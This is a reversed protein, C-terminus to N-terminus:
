RAPHRQGVRGLLQDGAASQALALTFWVTKGGAPHHEVGWREAFMDVIRLGRGSPETPGPCRMTPTGGGHDTVEVRVRARSHEVSLDFGTHVHRVANTTLESVLLEATQRVDDSTPALVAVVFRRAATVSAPEAAFARTQKM